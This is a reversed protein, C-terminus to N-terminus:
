YRTRRRVPSVSKHRRQKLRYISRYISSDDSDPLTNMTANAMKTKKIKKKRKPISRSQHSNYRDEIPCDDTVIQGISSNLPKHCYSTKVYNFPVLTTHVHTNHEDILKELRSIIEFDPVSLKDLELGLMKAIITRFNALMKKTKRTETLSM